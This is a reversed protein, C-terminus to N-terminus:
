KYNFVILFLKITAQSISGLLPARQWTNIVNRNYKPKMSGVGPLPHNPTPHPQPTSSLQVLHFHIGMLNWFIPPNM